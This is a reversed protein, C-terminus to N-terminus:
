EDVFVWFDDIIARLDEVAIEYTTFKYGCAVCQRRRRITNVSLPPIKDNLKFRQPKRTEICATHDHNCLTM